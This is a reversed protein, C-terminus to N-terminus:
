SIVKKYTAVKLLLKVLHPQQTPWDGLVEHEREENLDELTELEDMASTNEMLIHLRGVDEKELIACDLEVVETNARHQCCIVALFLIHCSPSKVIPRRFTIVATKAKGTVDPGSPADHAGLKPWQTDSGM